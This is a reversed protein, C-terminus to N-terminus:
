QTTFHANLNLLFNSTVHYIGGVLIMQIKKQLIKSFSQQNQFNTSVLRLSISSVVEWFYLGTAQWKTLHLWSFSARLKKLRLNFLKGTTLNLGFNSQAKLCGTM